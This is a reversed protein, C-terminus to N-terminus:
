CLQLVFVVVLGFHLRHLVVFLQIYVFYFFNPVVILLQSDISFYYYLFLINYYNLVFDLM